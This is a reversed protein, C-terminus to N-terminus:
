MCMALADLPLSPDYVEVLAAFNDVDFERRGPNKLRVHFPEPDAGAGAGPLSLLGRTGSVDVIELRPVWRARFDRLLLASLALDDIKGRDLEAAHALVHEVVDRSLVLNCGSLHSRDPSLGAALGREPAGRLFDGLAKWHYFSSLNTRVVADFGEDVCRRFALLTKDLIGPVLSERVGPFAWDMDDGAETVLFRVTMSAPARAAHLAWLERFRAYAAGPSAIVLVAVKMTGAGKM